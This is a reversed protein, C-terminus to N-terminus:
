KLTMCSRLIWTNWFYKSSAGLHLMCLQKWVSLNEWIVIKGNGGGVLLGAGLVIWLSSSHVNSSWVQRGVSSGHGAAPRSGVTKFTCCHLSWLGRRFGWRVHLIGVAAEGGEGKRVAHLSGKRGGRAKSDWRQERIQIEKIRCGADDKNIIFTVSWDGM